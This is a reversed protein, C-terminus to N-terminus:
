GGETALSTLDLLGASAPAFGCSEIYFARHHEDFDVHRWECGAQAASEAALGVVSRGIGSRQRDPAVIVDQIWAHVTGDGIVNAFAVLDAGSRATVWGLSHDSVIRNWPDDFPEHGFAAGHLRNLEDDSFDGRWALDIPDM